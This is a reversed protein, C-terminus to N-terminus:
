QTAREMVGSLSAAVNYGIRIGYLEASAYRSRLHQSADTGLEDGIECNGTAVDIIVMKGINGETEVHQRINNQYLEEDRRGVGERKASGNDVTGGRRRGTFEGDQLVYSGSM